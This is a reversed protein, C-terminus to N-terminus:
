AQVQAKGDVGTRSKNTKRSGRKRRPNVALIVRNHREKTLRQYLEKAEDVTPPLEYKSHEKVKEYNLFVYKLVDFVRRKRINCRKSTGWPTLKFHLLCNAVKVMLEIKEYKSRRRREEFFRELFQRTVPFKLLGNYKYFAKPNKGMARSAAAVTTFINETSQQKYKKFLFKLENVNTM